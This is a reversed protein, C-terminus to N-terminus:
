AADNGPDLDPAEDRAMQLAVEYTVVPMHTRQILQARRILAIQRLGHRIQRNSLHHNM